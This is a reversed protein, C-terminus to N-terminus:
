GERVTLESVVGSIPAVITLRAQVKGSSEVLRIQEDTMGVLRMRQRAGDLLTELGNGEMRRVSLYEEQAAIWEPVYLQALAQGKRVPDLP